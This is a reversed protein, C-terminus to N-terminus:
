LDFHEVLRKYMGQPGESTSILQIDGRLIAKLMKESTQGSKHATALEDAFRGSGELVLIPLNLDKGTALYVDRQAIKGGNILIGLAKQTKGACIAHTLRVITESEDGWEQAEVLVFHSHGNELSAEKGPNTHGPFDVKGLPTVGILPFTYGASRRTDGIMKMVGSETGGDIVVIQKEQAFKAIGNAIIQQTMEIDQESMGSAGGSIFIVPRAQQIGLAQKVQEADSHLPIILGPANQQPGFSITIRRAGPITPAPPPPPATKRDRQVIGYIAAAALVLVVLIALIPLLSEPM